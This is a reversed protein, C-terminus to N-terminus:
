VIKNEKESEEGCLSGNESSIKKGKKSDIDSNKEFEEKKSEVDSNQSESSSSSSSENEKKAVNSLLIPAKFESKQVVIGTRNKRPRVPSAQLPALNITLTNSNGEKESDLKESHSGESLSNECQYDEKHQIAAHINFEPINADVISIQKTLDLTQQTNKINLILFRIPFKIIIKPFSFFIPINNLMMPPYKEIIETQPGEIIEWNEADAKFFFQSNALDDRYGGAIIVYDETALCVPKTLVVPFEEKLKKCKFDELSICFISKTPVSNYVGCVLFIKGGKMYCSYNQLSKFDKHKFRIKCNEWHKETFDYSMLEPSKTSFVYLMSNHFFICGESYPNTLNELQYISKTETHIAYAKKSIKGTPKTGGLAIIYSEGVTGILSDPYIKIDKEFSISQIKSNTMYYLSKSTRCLYCFEPLGISKSQLSEDQQHVTCTGM